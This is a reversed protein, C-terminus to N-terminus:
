GPQIEQYSGYCRQLRAACKQHVVDDGRAIRQHAIDGHLRLDNTRDDDSNRPLCVLPAQFYFIMAPSHGFPAGACLRFDAHLSHVLSSPLMPARKLHARATFPVDTIATRGRAPSSAAYVAISRPSKKLSLPM